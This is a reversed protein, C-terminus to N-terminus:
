ELLIQILVMTKMTISDVVTVKILRCCGVVIWNLLTMIWKVVSFIPDLWRITMLFWVVLITCVDTSYNFLARVSSVFPGVLLRIRQSFQLFDNAECFAFLATYLFLVNIFLFLIKVTKERRCFGSKQL